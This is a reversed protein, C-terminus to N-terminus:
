KFGTKAQRIGDKIKLKKLNIDLVYRSDSVITLKM